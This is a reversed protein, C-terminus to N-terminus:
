GRLILRQSPKGAFLHDLDEKYIDYKGHVWATNKVPAVQIKEIRKAPKYYTICDVVLEEAPDYTQLLKILEWVRM